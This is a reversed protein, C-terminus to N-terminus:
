GTLERRAQEFDSPLVTRPTRGNIIAIERARARVMDWTVTGLGQAHRSIKGAEIDDQKMLCVLAPCTAPLPPSCRGYCRQRIFETRFVGYDLAAFHCLFHNDPSNSIPM